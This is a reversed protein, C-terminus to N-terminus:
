FLAQWITLMWYIYPLIHIKWSSFLAQLDVLESKAIEAERPDPTSFGWASYLQTCGTVFSPAPSDPSHSMTLVCHPLQDLRALWSCSSECNPDGLASVSHHSPYLLSIRSWVQPLFLSHMWRNWNSYCLLMSQTAELCCVNTPNQFSPAGFWPLTRIQSFGEEQHM